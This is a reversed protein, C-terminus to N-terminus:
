PKAHFHQQFDQRFNEHCALCTKQLAAFATIIDDGNKQAAHTSLERAANHTKIDYGKFTAMKDGMYAMIRKKEDMSPRPHDAVQRANKEVLAWDERSIGDSISQMNTGLDQMIKQLTLAENSATKAGADIESDAPTQACANILLLASFFSTRLFYKKM